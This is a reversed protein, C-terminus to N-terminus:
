QEGYKVVFCNTCKVYEFVYCELISKSEFWCTLLVVVSLLAVLLVFDPLCPKLPCRSEFGGDDNGVFPCDCWLPLPIVFVMSRGWALRGTLSNARQLWGSLPSLLINKSILLDISKYNTKSIIHPFIPM